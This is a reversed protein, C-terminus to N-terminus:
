WRQPPQFIHWVGPPLQREDVAVYRPVEVERVTIADGNKAQPCDWVYGEHCSCQTERRLVLRVTLTPFEVSKRGRQEVEFRIDNCADEILADLVASAKRLGALQKARSLLFASAYGASDISEVADSM